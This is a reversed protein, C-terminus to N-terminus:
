AYSVFAGAEDRGVIRIRGGVVHRPQAVFSAQLRAIERMPVGHRPEDITPRLSGLGAAGSRPEFSDEGCELDQFDDDAEAVYRRIRPVGGLRQILAFWPPSRVGHASRLRDRKGARM